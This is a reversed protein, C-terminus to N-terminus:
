VSVELYKVYTKYSKATEELTKIICEVLPSFEAKKDENWHMEISANKTDIDTHVSLNLVDVLGIHLAQVLASVAACVIDNGSDAFGSHGFVKLGCIVGRRRFVTIETM